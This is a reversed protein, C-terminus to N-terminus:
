RGELQDLRYGSDTIGGVQKFDSIASVDVDM